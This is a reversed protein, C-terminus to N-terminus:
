ARAELEILRLIADSYTEGPGRMASLGNVVAPPLWVYRQGKADVEPEYAVSGLADTCDDRVRRRQDCHPDRSKIM